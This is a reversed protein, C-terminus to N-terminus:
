RVPSRRSADPVRPDGGSPLLRGHVGLGHLPRGAPLLAALATRAAATVSGPNFGPRITATNGAGSGDRRDARNAVRGGMQDGTEAGDGKNIKNDAGM